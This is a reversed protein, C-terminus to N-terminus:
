FVSIPENWIMQESLLEKRWELGSGVARRNVIVKWKGAADDWNFLNNREDMRGDYKESQHQGARCVM